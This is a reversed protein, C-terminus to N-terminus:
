KVLNRPWSWCFFIAEDLIKNANFSENSFIMRNRHNWVCWTLAVWSILWRQSKIGLYTSCFSHQLFNQRPHQTFPGAMNIWSLSEWWIQGLKHCSFFLHGANEDKERCFPCLTDNIDVNRRTLNSKTPLRDRIQRWAFFAAKSPIKLKRLDHFIGDTNDDKSNRDLLQYASRVTYKGTPDNMWVWTDTHQMHINVNQIEELFAAGMPIEAEFLLRRWQLRWEWSGESSEGMQLIYQMQQKSNLYLRPYKVKLPIGDAMWGDEWFRAKA